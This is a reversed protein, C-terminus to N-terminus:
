TKHRITLKAQGGASLSPTDNFAALVARLSVPKGKLWHNWSGHRNSERGIRKVVIEGLWHAVQGQCGM